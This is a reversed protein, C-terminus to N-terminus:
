FDSFLFQPKTGLQCFSKVTEMSFAYRKYSM